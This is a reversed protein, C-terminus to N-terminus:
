VPGTSNPASNAPTLTRLSMHHKTTPSHRKSVSMHESLLTVAPWTTGSILRLRTLFCSLWVRACDIVKTYKATNGIQKALNAPLEDLHRQAEDDILLLKNIYTVDGWRDNRRRSTRTSMICGHCFASQFSKFGVSGM